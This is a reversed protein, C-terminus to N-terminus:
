AKTTTSNFYKKSVIFYATMMMLSTFIWSVPYVTMLLDFTQHKPFIVYIWFIRFCVSGLITICAPLLSKGIGRLVGASIEYIGTLCEITMVHHMRILAYAIVIRNSTYLMTFPRGWITFIASLLITLGMGEAACIWYIKKCRTLNRAGYNQSSFTVAAQAFASIIYFTFYEFTLGVSSGSIADRGFSNIGKQIVVNSISFVGSQIAAPIGIQLIQNLFIRNVKLKRFSVHIASTEKCLFYCIIVASLANSLSTAIAVGAVGMHFAVVLIVNLIANFIGSIILCCMPRQTDGTSRLIASGFNFFILFPMGLFYIKLYTMAYPLVDNPTAVFLLLPKALFQGAFLMFVGILLAFAIVTHVVKEIAAKQNQGIYKAIAVNPGVSLGVFINVFLATVAANASVGALAHDGAFHGVVAVDVSNFLQQLISSLALPISFLFVPKWLSGQLINMQNKTNKNRM